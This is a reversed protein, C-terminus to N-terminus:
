TGTKQSDKLQSTPTVKMSRTLHSESRMLQLSKSTNFKMLRWIQQSTSRMIQSIKEIMVSTSKSLSIMNHRLSNPSPRQGFKHGSNRGQYESRLLNTSSILCHTTFLSSLSKRVRMRRTSSLATLLLIMQNVLALWYCIPRFVLRSRCTM